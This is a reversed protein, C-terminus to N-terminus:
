IDTIEKLPVLVFDRQQWLPHPITLEPTEVVIENKGDFAKIIDIDITRDSYQGNQSKQKRGLQKEISQTAKLMDLPSLKTEVSCCLNCFKHTSDFGWPDSYYLSSCRLITGIQQEILQKAANLTLEREGLNAGLSLYYLM